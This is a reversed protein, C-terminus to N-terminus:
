RIEFKWLYNYLTNDDSTRIMVRNEGPQL